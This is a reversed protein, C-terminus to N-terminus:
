GNLQLKAEKSEDNKMIEEDKKMMETPDIPHIKIEYNVILNSTL